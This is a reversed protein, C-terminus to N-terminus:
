VAGRDADDGPALRAIELSVGAVPFRALLADGMASAPTLVGRLDSLKDRDLALALASEGLLVATARYGPDGQQAITARYRSRNTTTTYIEVQYSGRERAAASPGTGPKPAVRDVLRRPLLRFYRSGLGSLANVAATVVASAAPAVVSSGLSMHEAYRFQRGYAWDLLGNSCRVIRTNYPAMLFGATWLDGLEPAIDCGRRWRLDPQRGLGPEAGRDSSLTYPDALQRRADSDSSATRLVEM